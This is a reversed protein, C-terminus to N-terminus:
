IEFQKEGDASQDIYWGCFRLWWACHALNIAFSVSAVFGCTLAFPMTPSSFDLLAFWSGNAYEHYKVGAIISILLGIALSVPLLRWLLISSRKLASRFYFMSLAVVTIGLTAAILTSILFSKYDNADLGRWWFMAAATALGSIAMLELLTRSSTREIQDTTATAELIAMRGWNRRLLAFCFAVCYLTEWFLVHQRNPVGKMPLISICFAITLLGSCVVLRLARTNIPTLLFLIPLLLWCTAIQGVRLWKAIFHSQNYQWLVESSINMATIAIVISIAFRQMLSGRWYLIPLVSGVVMCPMLCTYVSFHWAARLKWRAATWLNTGLFVDLFPFEFKVVVTSVLLTGILSLISLGVCGLWFSKISARSPQLPEQMSDGLPDDFPDGVSDITDDNTVM